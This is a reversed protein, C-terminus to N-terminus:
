HLGGPAETKPPSLMSRLSARTARINDQVSEFASQMAGSRGGPSGAEVFDSLFKSKRGLGPSTSIRMLRHALPFPEASAANRSKPPSRVPSLNDRSFLAPQNESDDQFPNAKSEIDLDALDPPASARVRRSLLLRPVGEKISSQTAGFDDSPHSPDLATASEARRVRVPTSPGIERNTLNSFEEFSLPRERKGIPVPALMSLMRGRAMESAHNRERSDFTKDVDYM